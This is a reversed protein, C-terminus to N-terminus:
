AANGGEDEGRVVELRPKVKPTAMVRVPKAPALAFDCGGPACGCNGTRLIADVRELDNAVKAFLQSRAGADEVVAHALLAKARQAHMRSKTELHRRLELERALDIGRVVQAAVVNAMEAAGDRSLKLLHEAECRAALLEAYGPATSPQANCATELRSLLSELAPRSNHVAVQTLPDM